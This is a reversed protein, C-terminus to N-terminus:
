VFDSRPSIRALTALWMLNISIALAVPALAMIKGSSEKVPYSGERASLSAIFESSPRKVWNWVMASALLIVMPTPTGVMLWGRGAMLM